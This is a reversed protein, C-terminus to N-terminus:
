VTSVNCVHYVKTETAITVNTGCVHNSYDYSASCPINGCVFSDFNFVYHLPKPLRCITHQGKYGLNVPEFGASATPNKLAFFDEARKGESLSTFSHTGHRLNIAHLLDRFAVQFDPMKLSFKGAMERGWM